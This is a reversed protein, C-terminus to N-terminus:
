EDKLREVSVISHYHKARTFRILAESKSPAEVKQEKIRHTIVSEYVVTYTKLKKNM